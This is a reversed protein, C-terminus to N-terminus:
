NLILRIFKYYKNKYEFIKFKVFFKILIKLNLLFYIKKTLLVNFILNQFYNINQM